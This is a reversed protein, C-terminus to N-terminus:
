LFPGVSTSFGSAWISHVPGFPLRGTWAMLPPPATSSCPIDWWSGKALLVHSNTRSSTDRWIRWMVKLDCPRTQVVHTIDLTELTNWFAFLRLSYDWNAVGARSMRCSCSQVSTILFIFWKSLVAAQRQRWRVSARRRHSSSFRLKAVKPHWSRCCFRMLHCMVRTPLIEFKWIGLPEPGTTLYGQLVLVYPFRTEKYSCRTTSLWVVICSTEVQGLFYSWLNRRGLWQWGLICWLHMLLFVGLCNKQLHDCYIVLMKARSSHLGSQSHMGRWEKPLMILSAPCGQHLGFPNIGYIRFPNLYSVVIQIAASHRCPLQPVHM